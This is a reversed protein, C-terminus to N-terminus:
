CSLPTACWPRRDTPRRFRHDRTDGKVPHAGAGARGRRKGAGRWCGHAAPERHRDTPGRATSYARHSQYKQDARAVPGGRWGRSPNGHEDRESERLGGGVKASTVAVGPGAVVPGANSFRAVGLQLPTGPRKELAGVSVIGDAAAPPATAIEYRPRESENGAAAILIANAFMSSHARVLQAIADFLRVNERFATLAISTAPELELGRQEMLARVLGPFDLGISMSVVNAGERVAWLLGDLIQETTGSGQANLVKGILAKEVGPAVGIRLGGVSGGFVTGACHTGHGNGDGDGEKTFDKQVVTKGAFAEHGADIGTDLVAVTVGAGSFPSTAAGVATIGWTAGSEDQATATASAQPKILAVPMVPAARLVTPDRRADSAEKATLTAAEVEVELRGLAEPGALVGGAVAEENGKARLVVYRQENMLGGSLEPVAVIEQADKSLDERGPFFGHANTWWTVYRRLQRRTSEIAFQGQAASRARDVLLEAAARSAGLNRPLGALPALLWAEALTGCSWYEREEGPQPERDRALEAGRLVIALDEPRNLRGTLAAELALEQLGPWHSSINAKVAHRYHESAEQLASRSALSGGDETEAQRLARMFRLEALRKFASAQLGCCEQLLATDHSLDCRRGELSDLRRILLTEIEDFEAATGPHQSLQDARQQVADLMGLEARLGFALLHGAYGEPPLRVYGVLSLWDHGADTNRRLAVRASHLALRVDDGQLLCAYFANVLTVSGSKTLPLQSGVVVPIGARHLEQVVSCIAFAPNGQNASDCAALTVVLPLGDRPKLASCIDAPSTGPETEYGLRLGWVEKQPLRPDPAVRAGHALVHVYGPQLEDRVRALETASLVERVSLLGTRQVDRGRSWPALAQSLAQIHNDVLGRDLDKTVAAHAFLVVPTAPWPLSQESFDSRIRRTLVVGRDDHELWHLNRAFCAEFPFAWLEAANTVLDIQLLDQGGATRTPLLRASEVALADRAEEIEPKSGLGAYRLSNLHSLLEEHDLGPSVETAPDDWGTTRIYRNDRSLIAQPRGYRHFEIMRSSIHPRAKM